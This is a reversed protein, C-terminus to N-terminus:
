QGVFRITEDIPGRGGTTEGIITFFYEVGMKLGSATLRRSNSQSDAMTWTTKRDSSMLLVYKIGSLKQAKCSFYLTDLSNSLALKSNEIASPAPTINNRRKALEFGVSRPVMDNEPYTLITWDALADCLVVCDAVQNHYLLTNTQNQFNESQTRLDILVRNADAIARPAPVSETYFPNVQISETLRNFWDSFIGPSASRFSRNIAYTTASPAAGEPASVAARTAASSSTTGAVAMRQSARASILKTSMAFLNQHHSIFSNGLLIAQVNAAFM